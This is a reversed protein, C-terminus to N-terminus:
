PTPTPRETTEGTGTEPRSTSEPTAESPASEPSTSAAEAPVQQAEQSETWQKIVANRQEPTLKSLARYRARAAERQKPTLKAWESM